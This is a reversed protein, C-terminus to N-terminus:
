KAPRNKKGVYSFSHGWAIIPKEFFHWSFKALFITAILATFTILGDSFNNIIQDKGILGHAVANIIVHILYVSYAITGLNRLMPLRMISAIM